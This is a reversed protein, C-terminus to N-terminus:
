ILFHNTIPAAEIPMLGTLRHEPLPTVPVSLAVHNSRGIMRPEWHLPALDKATLWEGSKPAGHVAASYLSVTGGEQAQMAVKFTESGFVQPTRCSLTMEPMGKATVMEWM